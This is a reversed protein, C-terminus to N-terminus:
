SFIEHFHTRDSILRDELEGALSQNEKVNRQQEQSGIISNNHTFIHQVLFYSAYSLFLVSFLITVITMCELEAKYHSGQQQTEANYTPISEVLAFAVIGTRLTGALMLVIQNRWQLVQILLLSKTQHHSRRFTSTIVSSTSQSSSANRECCSYCCFICIKIILALLYVMFARSITSILIAFAGLSADSWKIDFLFIGLYALIATEALTSVGESLLKVGKHADSSVHGPSQYFVPVISINEGEEEESLPDDDDTTFNIYQHGDGSSTAFSHRHAQITGDDDPEATSNLIANLYSSPTATSTMETGGLIFIDM